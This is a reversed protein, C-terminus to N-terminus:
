SALRKRRRLGVAVVGLGLGMLAYTSPEPVPTFNLVLDNGNQSLFFQGTGLLDVFESSDIAIANPDFGAIGGSASAITWSYYQSNDFVFKGSYLSSQSAPSLALTFPAGPTSTITLTGTVLIEDWGTGAGGSAGSADGLAWQYTGGSALTLGTGFTLRGIAANGLNVDYYDNFIGPAVTQSNGIVVGGAPAFTGFGGVTGSSFNLSNTLTANGTLYLSGVSLSIPGSGLASNNGAILTGQYDASGGITTGGSYTNNGTLLLSGSYLAIGGTGDITGVFEGGGSSGYSGISLVASNLHITGLEGGALSGVTPAATLFNVTGNVNLSANGLASDNAVDLTGESVDLSGNFASNDGALQLTGAGIKTISSEGSIMGSLTFSNAADLTLDGYNLMLDNPITLGGATTGLVAGYSASVTLAGTGLAGSDGLELRGGQLMTGGSYDNANQLLVTSGPTAFTGRTRSDYTYDNAATETSFDNTVGIILSYTGTPLSSVTLYGDKVAALFIYPPMAGTGQSIGVTASTSTGLYSGYPFLNLTDTSITLTNPAAPNPSDLGLVVTADGINIRPGLNELEAVTPTYDLGLYGQNSFYFSGNVGALATSSAFRLLSNDIQTYGTYDNTGSLILTLAQTSPSYLNLSNEGTLNSAVELTGGGGGFSYAGGAPTITGTLKASTASGLRPNGTFASLDIPGSIIAPSAPTATDFGITGSSAPDLRSIFQAGTIGTAVDLGLYGDNYVCV